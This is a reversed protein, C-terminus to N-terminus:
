LFRFALSMDGCFLQKQYLVVESNIIIDFSHMQVLCFIVKLNSVDIIRGYGIPLDENKAWPSSRFSKLGRYKQFREKASIDLPTDVQLGCTVAGEM